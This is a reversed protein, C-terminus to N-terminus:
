RSLILDAFCRSCSDLEKQQAELIQCNFRFIKWRVAMMETERDDICGNKVYCIPNKATAFIPTDGAFCIDKAYHTKPAPLHVLQGELLVLLDHWPIIAQSWRFDNLFLCEAKEADVWAFSSSAPNSFTTFIKTIPNLIFTKGCNAPGIIMINRYKGRGKTLLNLVAQQFSRLIVGNNDLVEKALQLWLGNCGEVCSGERAENLLEIRSKERRARREKASEMEWATNIVDAVVKSGRNVIFEAIDKKGEDKQEKAFILLEERSRINKEVIIESLEFATLRKRKKGEEGNDEDEDGCEGELMDRTYNAVSKARLRRKKTAQSTKPCNATNSLDPHGESELAEKDQKTTYKWASYYNDHVASFHVSIGNHKSLYRKSSLWRQNRNFKIAMHYHKGGSSQHEEQSCCWQQISPPVGSFSVLVADAFSRRTPFKVLDAQSYTILYVRRISRSDLEKSTLSKANSEADVDSTNASNSSM